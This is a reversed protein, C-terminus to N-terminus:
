NGLIILKDDPLSETIKDLISHAHGDHHDCQEDFKEWRQYVFKGENQKDQIQCEFNTRDVKCCCQKSVKVNQVLIKGYYKTASFINQQADASNSNSILIDLNTSGKQVSFGNKEVMLNSINDIKFLRLARFNSISNPGIHLYHCNLIQIEVADYPLVLTLNKEVRSINSRQCNNCNM